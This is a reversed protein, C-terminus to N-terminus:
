WWLLLAWFSSQRFNCVLYQRNNQNNVPLTLYFYAEDSCIIHEHTSQPCYFSGIPLIWGKKTIKTRWSIGYIFITHNLICITMFFITFLHPHFVLLLHRKESKCNIFNRSWTKSSIKSWIEVQGQIKSNQLFLHLRVM